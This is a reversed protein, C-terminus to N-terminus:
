PYIENTLCHVSGGAYKFYELSTSYRAIGFKLLQEEVGPTQFPCCNVLIGPAVLTNIAYNGLSTGEGSSDISEVPIVAVELSELSALSEKRIMKPNVMVGVLYNEPDVLPTFVTDLHYGQSQILVAHDPQIIDLVFEHAVRNSRSLGGFYYSGEETVLYFVEGFELYADEPLMMREKGFQNPIIKAYVEAEIERGRASFNGQFWYGGVMMGADRLFVADHYMGDPQNLEDPFPLIHVTFGLQNLLDCLQKWDRKLIAQDPIINHENAYVTAYNLSAESYGKHVPYGNSWCGGIGNQPPPLETMIIENM